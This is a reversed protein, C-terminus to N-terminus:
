DKQVAVLHGSYPGVINSLVVFGALRIQNIVWAEKVHSLHYEMALGSRPFRLPYADVGFSIKPM